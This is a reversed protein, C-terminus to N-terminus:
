TPLEAMFRDVGRRATPWLIALSAAAVVFSVSGRLLLGVSWPDPGFTWVLGPLAIAFVLAIGGLMGVVMAWPRVFQSRPREQFDSFRSAVSLGVLVGVAISCATLVVLSAVFTLALHVWVTVAVALAAALLVPLLLSEAAKARLLNGASLPFAFLGVIARREQGFSTISLMLAFFGPIWVVWIGLTAESLTGGGSPSSELFGLLALVLPTVLIPLMERRRVLGVLDKSVIAAEEPALGFAALWPHGGGYAHAELRVEAPSPSWFRERLATAAYLLFGLFGVQGVAFLAAVGWAGQAFWSIAETSWFLPVVAAWASVSSITSLFGILILPNFALQFLLIVVLFLVARLVLTVKGKRGSLATGARQLTARLMEILLGGEFLASIALVASLLYTALLGFQLAIALAAGLVFAAATSYVLAVSLASALVYETPTVPLWNVADSAAFRSATSFEFMVGAVLVVAVSIVPLLAILPLGVVGASGSPITGIAGLATHVVLFVGVFVALDIVLLIAPRAFWSRPNSLSRGSRLESALLVWSVRGVRHLDM